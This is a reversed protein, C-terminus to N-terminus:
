LEASFRAGVGTWYRFGTCRNRTCITQKAAADVTVLLSM